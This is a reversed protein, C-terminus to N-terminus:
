NIVNISLTSSNASNKRFTMQSNSIEKISFDLNSQNYSGVSALHTVNELAGLFYTYLGNLVYSFGSASCSEVVKYGKYAITNDFTIIQNAGSSDWTVNTKTFISTWTGDTGNTTNNSGEIVFTHNNYDVTGVWYCAFALETAVVANPYIIGFSSSNVPFSNATSSADFGFATGFLLKTPPDLMTEFVEFMSTNPINFTHEQGQTMAQTITTIGSGGSPSTIGSVVTHFDSNIQDITVIFENTINDLATQLDSSM